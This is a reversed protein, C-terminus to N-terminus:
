VRQDGSGGSVGQQVVMQQWSNKFFCRKEWTARRSKPDKKGCSFKNPVVRKPQCFFVWEVFHWPSNEAPSILVMKKKQAAWCMGPHIKYKEKYRIKKPPTLLTSFKWADARWVVFLFCMAKTKKKRRPSIESGKFYLITTELFLPNEGWIMWKLYPKGHNEGDMKPTKGRNKTWCGYTELPNAPHSPAAPPPNSSTCPSSQIHSILHHNKCCFFVCGLTPHPKPPYTERSFHRRPFPVHETRRQRKAMSKKTPLHSELHIDLDTIGQFSPCPGSIKRSGGSCRFKGGSSTLNTTPLKWPKWRFGRGHFKLNKSIQPGELSLPHWFNPLWNEVHSKQWLIGMPIIYIYVYMYYTYIYVIGVHIPNIEFLYILLCIYREGNTGHIRKQSLWGFFSIPIRYAFRLYADNWELRWCSSKKGM